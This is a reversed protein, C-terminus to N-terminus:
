ANAKEPSESPALRVSEAIPSAMASSVLGRSDAVSPALAVQRMNVQDHLVKLDEEKTGSEALTPAVEPKNVQDHQV